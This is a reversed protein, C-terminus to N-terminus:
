ANLRILTQQLYAIRNSLSKCHPRNQLCQIHQKLLECFHKKEEAFLSEVPEEFLFSYRILKEPKPARKGSEWQSILTSGKYGLLFAIDEQKLCARKRHSRLLTSHM